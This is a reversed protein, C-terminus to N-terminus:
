KVEAIANAAGLGFPQNCKQAGNRCPNWLEIRRVRFDPAVALVIVEERMRHHTSGVVEDGTVASRPISRVPSTRITVGAPNTSM